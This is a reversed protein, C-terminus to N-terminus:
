TDTLYNKLDHLDTLIRTDYRDSLGHKYVVGAFFQETVVIDSYPIAVALSMIDELDNAEIECDRHFDRGHSLVLQNYYVPFQTLFYM